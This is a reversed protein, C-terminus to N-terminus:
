EDIITAKDLFVKIAEFGAETLDSANIIDITKTHVDFDAEVETKNILKLLGNVDKSSLGSLDYKNEIAFTDVNEKLYKGQVTVKNNKRSRSINSRDLINLAIKAEGESKFTYTDGSFEFSLGANQLLADIEAKSENVPLGNFIRNGKKTLKYMKNDDVEFIDANRKKWIEPKVSSKNLLDDFEAETMLQNKGLYQIMENRVRANKGVFKAPHNETYKRKVQIKSEAVNKLNEWMTKNEKIKQLINFKNNKLLDYGKDRLSKDNFRIELRTHNNLEGNFVFHTTEEIKMDNFLKIINKIPVETNYEGKLLIVHPFDKDTISYKLFSENLKSENADEDFGSEYKDEYWEDTEWFDEGSLFIYITSEKNLTKDSKFYNYLGQYLQNPKSKLVNGNFLITRKDNKYEKYTQSFLRYAYMKGMTNFTNQHVDDVYVVIKDQNEKNKWFSDYDNEYEWGADIISMDPFEYIDKNAM